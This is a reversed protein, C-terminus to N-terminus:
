SHCSLSHSGQAVRGQPPLPSLCVERVTPESPGWTTQGSSLCIPILEHGCYSGRVWGNGELAVWRGTTGRVTALGSVNSTIVCSNITQVQQFSSFQKGDSSRVTWNGNWPMLISWQDSRTLSLIHRTINQLKRITLLGWSVIFVLTLNILSVHIAQKSLLRCIAEERTAYLEM